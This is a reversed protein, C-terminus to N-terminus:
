FALGLRLALMIAHATHPPFYDNPDRADWRYHFTRLEGGVVLPGVSQGLIEAPGARLELGASAELMKDSDSFNQTPLLALAVPGSQSTLVWGFGGRLLPVVTLRRALSLRWSLIRAGLSISDFRMDVGQPLFLDTRQQDPTFEVGDIYVRYRSHATFRSWVLDVQEGKALGVRFGTVAEDALDIRWDQRVDTPFAPVERTYRSLDGFWVPGHEIGALLHVEGLLGAHADRAPGASALFCTSLALLIAATCRRPSVPLQMVLHQISTPPM